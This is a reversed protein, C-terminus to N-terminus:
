KDLEIDYTEDQIYNILDIKQVTDITKDTLIYELLLNKNKSIFGRDLNKISLINMKISDFVEEWSLEIAKQKPLTIGTYSVDDALVKIKNRENARRLLTEALTSPNKVDEWVEEKLGRYYTSRYKEPIEDINIKVETKKTPKNEQKREYYENKLYEIWDKELMSAPRLRVGIKKLIQNINQIANKGVNKFRAIHDESCVVLDKLTIENVNKSHNKLGRCISRIWRSSIGISILPTSLFSEFEDIHFMDDINTILNARQNALMKVYRVNNLNEMNVHLNMEKIFSDVGYEQIGRLCQDRWDKIYPYRFQCFIGFKGLRKYEEAYEPKEIDFNYSRTLLDEYSKFNYWAANKLDYEKSLLASFAMEAKKEELGLNVFDNLAKREKTNMLSDYAMNLNLVSFEQYNNENYGITDDTFNLLLIRAKESKNITKFAKKIIGSITAISLSEEQAIQGCTKMIGDKLGYYSQVVRVVSEDLLLFIYKHKELFAKKNEKQRDIATDFLFALLRYNEEENEDYFKKM